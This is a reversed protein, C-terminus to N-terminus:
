VDARTKGRMIDAVTSKSIGLYKAVRRQTNTKCLERVKHVVEVPTDKGSRNRGSAKRDAMNQKHDGLYLHEPNICKRNHCKHLVMQGEPNVGHCMWFSMRHARYLKRTGNLKMYLQGYGHTDIAGTWEICDNM